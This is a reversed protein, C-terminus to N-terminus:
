FEPSVPVGPERPELFYRGLDVAREMTVVSVPM